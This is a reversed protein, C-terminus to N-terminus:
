SRLAKLALVEQYIVTDVKYPLSDHAVSVDRRDGELPNIFKSAINSMVVCFVPASIKVGYILPRLTSVGSAHVSISFVFVHLKSLLLFHILWKTVDLLLATM